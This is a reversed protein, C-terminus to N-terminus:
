TRVDRIEFSLGVMGRFMYRVKLIRKHSFSKIRRQFIGLERINWQINQATLATYLSRFIYVWTADLAIDILSSERATEM